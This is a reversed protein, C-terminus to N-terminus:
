KYKLTKGSESKICFQKPEDNRITSISTAKPSIERSEKINKMMHGVFAKPRNKPWTLVGKSYKIFAADSASRPQQLM